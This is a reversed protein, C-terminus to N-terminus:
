HKCLLNRKQKMSQVGASKLDQLEKLQHYCKSRNEIMKAPSGSVTTPSRRTGPRSQGADYVLSSVQNAILTLAQTVSQDSKKRSPTGGGARIFMSTNPPTELSSHLDGGIMEGWIRYQM